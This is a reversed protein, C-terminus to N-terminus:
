KHHHIFFASVFEDCHKCYLTNPSQKECYQKAEREFRDIAEQQTKTSHCLPCLAQLNLIDNSGGLDLPIIHDVQYTAPLLEQCSACTWGQSAAVKKKTAESVNRKPM